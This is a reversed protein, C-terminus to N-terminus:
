KQEEGIVTNEPLAQPDVTSVRRYIVGDREIYNQHPGQIQQPTPQAVNVIITPQAPQVILPADPLQAMAKQEAIKTTAAVDLESPALISGGKFYAPIATILTFLYAFISYVTFLVFAVLWFPFVFIFVIGLGIKRFLEKM